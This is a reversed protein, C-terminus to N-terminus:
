RGALIGPIRMRIQNRPAGTQRKTYAFLAPKGGQAADWAARAVAELPELLGAAEADRNSGLFALVAYLQGIAAELVNGTQRQHIIGDVLDGILKAYLQSSPQHSSARGLTTPILRVTETVIYIM